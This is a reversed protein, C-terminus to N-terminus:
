QFLVTYPAPRYQLHPHCPCGVLIVSYLSSAQMEYPHNHLCHSIFDYIHVDSQIHYIHIGFAHILRQSSILNHKCNAM